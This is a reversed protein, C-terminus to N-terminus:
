ERNSLGGVGTSSWYFLFSPDDGEWDYILGDVDSGRGVGRAKGQICRPLASGNKLRRITQLAMEKIEIRKKAEPWGGGGEGKRDM